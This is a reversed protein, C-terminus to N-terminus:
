PLLALSLALFVAHKLPFLYLSLVVTQLSMASVFIQLVFITQRATRKILISM